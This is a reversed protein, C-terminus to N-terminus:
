GFSEVYELTKVRIWLEPFALSTCGDTNKLHHYSTFFRFLSELINNLHKLADVVWLNLVNDLDHFLPAFFISKLESM